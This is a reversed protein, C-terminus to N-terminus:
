SANEALYNELDDRMQIAIEKRQLDSRMQPKELAWNHGREFKYSCIYIKSYSREPDIEPALEGGVCIVFDDAAPDVRGIALLQKEGLDVSIEQHFHDGFLQRAAEILMEGNILSVSHLVELRIKM